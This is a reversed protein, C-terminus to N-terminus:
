ASPTLGGQRVSGWWERWVPRPDGDSLEHVDEVVGDALDLEVELGVRGAIRDPLTVELPGDITECRWANGLAEKLVARV